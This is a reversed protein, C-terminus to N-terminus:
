DGVSTPVLIAFLVHNEYKITGTLGLLGLNGPYSGDVKLELDM